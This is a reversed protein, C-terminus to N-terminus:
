YSNLAEFYKKHVHVLAGTLTKLLLPERKRNLDTETVNLTAHNANQSTWLNFGQDSGMSGMSVM